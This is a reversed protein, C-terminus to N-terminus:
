ADPPPEEDWEDFPSDRYASRVAWVVAGILSLFALGIVLWGVLGGIEAGAIVVAAGALGILGPVLWDHAFAHLRRRSM